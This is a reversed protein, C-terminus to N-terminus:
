FRVDAKPARPNLWAQQPRYWVLLMPQLQTPPQVTVRGLGAPALAEAQVELPPEHDHAGPAVIAQMTHRQLAGQWRAAEPWRWNVVPLDRGDPRTLRTNQQVRQQARQLAREFQPRPMAAHAMVFERLPLEPALLAHLSQAADLQFSLTLHRADRLVLALRNAEIEHAASAACAILLATAAAVQWRHCGPRGTHFSRPSM